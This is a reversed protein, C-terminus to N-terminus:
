NDGRGFLPGAVIGSYGAEMLAGEIDQYSKAVIALGGLAKIDELFQRQEPSFRGCEAKCEVALIKGGPLCGLIDASGKLGFSM